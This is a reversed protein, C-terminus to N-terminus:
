GTSSRLEPRFIKLPIGPMGPGSGLDMLPSPLRTKLAPLMSDAYLKIVMNEFNRIRTLNLEADHRRLLQHYVWLQDLQVGSLDIGCRSLLAHMLEPGPTKRGGQKLPKAIPHTPDPKM